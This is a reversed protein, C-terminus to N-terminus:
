QLEWLQAANFAVDTGDSDVSGAMLAILGINYTSDHAITVIQKNVYLYFSKGLAILTVLNTQNLGTKFTSPLHGAVLVQAHRTEDSFMSILYIGTQEIVARYGYGKHNHADSRFYIGGTDGKIIRMQVQFAFNSFTGPRSCPFVDNAQPAVVHYAGDAFDCYGTDSQLTANWSSIAPNTLPDNIMPVGSTAQTYLAQPDNAVRATANLYTLASSTATALQEQQKEAQYRSLAYIMVTSGAILVVVLM